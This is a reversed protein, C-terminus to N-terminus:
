SAISPKRRAPSPLLRSVGPREVGTEQTILFRVSQGEGEVDFGMMDALEDIGTDPDFDTLVPLPHPKHLARLWANLLVRQRISRVVSPDSSPYEM